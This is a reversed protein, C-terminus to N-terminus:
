SRLFASRRRPPGANSPRVNFRNFMEMAESLTCLTKTVSSLYSVVLSDNKEDAYAEAFEACNLAPLRACVGAVQRLLQHDVPIKGSVTAELFNVLLQLRTQLMNISGRLTGLHLATSSTGDGNGSIAHRMVHDVAIRESDESAYRHSVPVLVKKPKDDVVKLEMQFTMLLSPTHTSPQSMPKANALETRMDDENLSTGDPKRTQTPNMLLLIPTENLVAFVEEHLRLDDQSVETGTAYWGVVIYQAFIQQYQEIRNKMFDEDVKVTGDDRKTATLEVSHCVEVTRGRQTGLLLGIVRPMDQENTLGERQPQGSSGGKGGESPQGSFMRIAAYRTFHDSVNLVVLPHLIIPLGEDSGNGVAEEGSEPASHLRGSM